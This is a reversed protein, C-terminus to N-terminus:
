DILTRQLHKVFRIVLGVTEKLKRKRYNSIVRKYYKENFDLPNGATQAFKLDSFSSSIVPMEQQLSSEASSIQKKHKKSLGAVPGELFLFNIEKQEGNLINFTGTYVEDDSHGHEGVANRIKGLEEFYRIKTRQEAETPKVLAALRHIRPLIEGPSVRPALQPQQKKAVLFSKLSLHLSRQQDLKQQKAQVQKRLLRLRETEADFREGNLQVFFKHLPNGFCFNAGTFIKRLTNVKEANDNNPFSPLYKQFSFILSDCFLYDFLLSLSTFFMLNFM